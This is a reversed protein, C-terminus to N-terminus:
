ENGLHLADGDDLRVGATDALEAGLATSVVATVIAATWSTRRDVAKPERWRM